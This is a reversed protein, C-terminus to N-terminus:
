TSADREWDYGTIAMPAGHCSPKSAYPKAEAARGCGIKTTVDVDDGETYVTDESEIPVLGQCRYFAVGEPRPAPAPRRAKAERKSQREKLFDHLPDGTV